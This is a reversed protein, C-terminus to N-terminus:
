LESSGNAMMVYRDTVSYASNLSNAGGDEGACTRPSSGELVKQRPWRGSEGRMEGDRTWRHPSDVSAGASRCLRSLTGRHFSGVAWQRRLRQNLDRKAGWSEGGVGGREGVLGQKHTLPQCTRKPSGKSAGGRRWEANSVLKLLRVGGNNTCGSACKLSIHQPKKNKENTQLNGGSGNLALRYWGM